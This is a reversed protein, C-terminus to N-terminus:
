FGRVILRVHNSGRRTHIRHPIKLADDLQLRVRPTKMDDGAFHDGLQGFQSLDFHPGQVQEDLV